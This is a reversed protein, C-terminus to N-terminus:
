PCLFVRKMPYTNWCNNPEVFLLPQVTKIGEEYPLHELLVRKMFSLTNSQNLLYFFSMFVCKSLQANQVAM